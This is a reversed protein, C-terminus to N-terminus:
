EGKIWNKVNNFIETYDWAGQEENDLNLEDVVYNQYLLYSASFICAMTFAIMVFFFNFDANGVTVFGTVSSTSKNAEVGLDIVSATEIPEISPEPTPEVVQEIVVYDKYGGTTVRFAYFGIHNPFVTFYVYGQANTTKETLKLSEQYMEVTVNAMPTGESSHTVRMLYGQEEGLVLGETHDVAFISAFSMAVLLLVILVRKM